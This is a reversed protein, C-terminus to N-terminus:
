LIIEQETFYWLRTNIRGYRDTIAKFHPIFKERITKDSANVRCKVLKMIQWNDPDYKPNQENRAQDNKAICILYNM